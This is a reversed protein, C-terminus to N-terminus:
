YIISYRNISSKIVIVIILQKILYVILNVTNCTFTCILFSILDINIIRNKFVAITELPSEPLVICIEEIMCVSIVPKAIFILYRYKIVSEGSFSFFYSVISNVSVTDCIEVTYFIRKSIKLIFFSYM